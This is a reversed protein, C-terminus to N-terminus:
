FSSSGLENLLGTLFDRVKDKETQRWNLTFKDEFGDLAIPSDTYLGDLSKTFHKQTETTRLDIVIGVGQKLLFYPGPRDEDSTLCVYYNPRQIYHMLTQLREAIEESPDQVRDHFTSGQAVYQTLKERDYIERVVGGSDVFKRLAASRRNILNVYDSVLHPPEWNEFLLRGREESLDNLRMHSPLHGLISMRVRDQGVQPEEDLVLCQKQLGIFGEPLFRADNMVGLRSATDEMSRTYEALTSVVGSSFRELSETSASIAAEARAREAFFSTRFWFVIPLLTGLVISVVAAVLAADDSVAVLLTVGTAVLTLSIGVVGWHSDKTM